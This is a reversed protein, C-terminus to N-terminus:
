SRDDVESCPVDEIAWRHVQLLVMFDYTDVFRLQLDRSVNHRTEQIEFSFSFSFFLVFNM